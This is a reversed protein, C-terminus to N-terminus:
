VGDPPSEPRLVPDPLDQVGTAGPDVTDDRRRELVVVDRWEGRHRVLRERVALTRYGSAHLLALAAKDEPLVSAQLTWLGALDAEVVQTRALAKGVGRGREGAAVHIRAEAVGAYASLRSVPWAAAWGVVAGEREAVWAHGDLWGTDLGGDEALIDGAEAGAAHLRRVAPLDADTLARVTVDEPVETPCCPRAALMGMVADAAHPLGTCCAANVAVRTSTGVRSTTVFGVEALKRLHHSVTPQRVGVAEALEGVSMAGPHTAIAHLLRVRTPEALCAFWAAYTEADGTPLLGATHEHTVTM